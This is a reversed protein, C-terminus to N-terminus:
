LTAERGPVARREPQATAACPGSAGVMSVLPPSARCLPRSPWHPQAAAEVAEGAARGLPGLRVGGPEGLGDWGRRAAEPVCVAAAAAAPLRAGAASM